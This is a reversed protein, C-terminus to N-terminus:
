SNQVIKALIPSPDSNLKIAKLGKHAGLRGNALIQLRHGDEIAVARNLRNERPLTIVQGPALATVEKVNMNLCDIVATLKLPLARTEEQMHDVWISSTSIEETLTPNINVTIEEMLSFPFIIRVIHVNDTEPEEFKYKLIAVKMADDGFRVNEVHREINLVSELEDEEIRISKPVDKQLGNFFCEFLPRCLNVDVASPTYDDPKTESCGEGSLGRELWHYTLLNDFHILIDDSHCFLSKAPLDDLLSMLTTTEAGEFLPQLSFKPELLLAETLKPVLQQGYILVSADPRQVRAAAIKRKIVEGDSTM